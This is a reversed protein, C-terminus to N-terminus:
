DPAGPKFRVNVGGGLGLERGTASCRCFAWLKQSYPAAKAEPRWPKPILEQRFGARTMKAGAESTDIFVAM